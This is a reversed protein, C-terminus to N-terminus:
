AVDDPEAIAHETDSTELGHALKASTNDLEPYVATITFPETQQHFKLLRPFNAKLTGLLAPNEESLPILTSRDTM